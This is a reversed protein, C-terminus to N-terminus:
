EFEEPHEMRYRCNHNDLGTQFALGILALGISGIGAYILDISGPKQGDAKKEQAATIRTSTDSRIIAGNGAQLPAALISAAALTGLLPKMCRWAAPAMGQRALEGHGSREKTFHM